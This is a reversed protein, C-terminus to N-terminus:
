TMLYNRANINLTLENTVSQLFRSERSPFAHTCSLGDIFMLIYRFTFYLTYILGTLTLVSPFNYIVYIYLYRTTYCKTVRYFACLIFYFRINALVQVRTLNCSFKPDYVRKNCRRSRFTSSISSTYNYSKSQIVQQTSRLELQEICYRM